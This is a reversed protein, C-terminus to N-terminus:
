LYVLSNLSPSPLSKENINPQSRKRLTQIKTQKNTQSLRVRYALSFELEEQRQRQRGLVLTPARTRM